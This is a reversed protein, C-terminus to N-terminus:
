RRESPQPRRRLRHGLRNSIECIVSKPSTVVARGLLALAHGYGGHLWAHRAVDALRRAQEADWEWEEVHIPLNKMGRLTPVRELRFAERSGVTKSVEHLRFRALTQDVYTVDINRALLRVMMEYDMCYKLEERIGGIAKLDALPVFTGPQAWGWAGAEWFRVFNRLAQGRARIIEVTGTRDFFETHGSVIRGPQQRWARAVAWLAGPMLLDDSNIWNFIEGTCRALGKNIAHSQGRDPESVWFALRDQYKKIIEVSQDRSGGDVVIYELDPYDQLLVSRITEELFHGQGFSPTM